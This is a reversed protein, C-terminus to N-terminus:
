ELRRPTIWEIILGAIVGVSIVGLMGELAAIAKGITSLPTIDGYGISGATIVSWYLGDSYSFFRQHTEPLNINATNEVQSRIYGNEAQIFAFPFVLTILVGFIAVYALLWRRHLRARRMEYLYARKHMRKLELDDDSPSVPMLRLLQFMQERQGRMEFQHVAYRLLHEIHDHLRLNTERDDFKASYLFQALRVVQDPDRWQIHAFTKPDVSAALFQAHRKEGQGSRLGSLAEVFVQSLQRQQEPTLDPQSHAQIIEDLLAQRGARSSRALKRLIQQIGSQTEAKEEPM